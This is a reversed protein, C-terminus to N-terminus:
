QIINGNRDYTHIIGAEENCTAPSFGFSVSNPLTISMRPNVAVTTHGYKLAVAVRTMPVSHNFVIYGYGSRAWSEELSYKGQPFKAQSAGIEVREFDSMFEGQWKGSANYFYSTMAYSSNMITPTADAGSAVTALGRVGILDTALLFIPKSSWTWEYYFQWTVGAEFTDNLGFRLTIKAAARRLEAPTLEESLDIDVSNKSLGNRNIYNNLDLKDEELQKKLEEEYNLNRLNDIEEKDWELSTLEEDTLSKLDMILDYENISVEDISNPMVVEEFIPKSSKQESTSSAEASLPLMMMIASLTLAFIKKLKKINFM